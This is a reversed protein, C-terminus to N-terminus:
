LLDDLNVDVKKAATKEDWFTGFKGVPTRHGTAETWMRDSTQTLMDTAMTDVMRFDPNAATSKISAAHRRIVDRVMQENNANYAIMGVLASALRVGQQEGIERAENLRQWPDQGKPTIGPVVSWIAARIAMPLGWWRQNGEPTDLCAAGREAKPAIDMPVGAMGGSQSDAMVGMLGVATGLIWVLEEQDNAFNPCEDVGPEGMARVLSLHGQYLRQAAIGHWRKSRIRADQAEEINQARSLRLFELNAEEARNSACSGGVMHILVALDDPPTTVSGFSLFLPTMAEGGACGMQTDNTTLLYPVVKDKGFAIAGDGAAKYALNTCGATLLVSAAAVAVGLRRLHHGMTQTM